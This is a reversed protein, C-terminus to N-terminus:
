RQANGFYVATRQRALERHTGGLRPRVSLGNLGLEVGRLEGLSAPPLSEATDTGARLFRFVTGSDFPSALEEAIGDAARTRFLGLTGPVDSSPGFDYRIRQTLFVPTGAGAAPPLSPALAVLRSGPPMAIRATACTGASSSSSVTVSSDVYTYTGGSARWAYGTATAGAYSASDIPLVGVIAAGGAYGCLVGLAYPVRIEISHPSAAVVGNPEVMRLESLLFNVSSRGVARASRQQLQRDVTRMQSMVLRLASASLIGLIVLSVLLEVLTM